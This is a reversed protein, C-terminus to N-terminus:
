IRDVWLQSTPPGGATGPQRRGRRHRRADGARDDAPSPISIGWGNTEGSGILAAVSTRLLSCAVDLRGEALLRRARSGTRSSWLQERCTPLPSVCSSRADIADAIRGGQILASVHGDGIVFKTHAADFASSSIAYGSNAAAVADAIRGVDGSAVTIGYATIAGVIAPLQELVLPKTLRRARDPVGM